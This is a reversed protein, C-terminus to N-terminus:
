SENDVVAKVLADKYKDNLAQLEKNRVELATMENTMRGIAAAQTKILSGRYNYTVMLIMSSVFAVVIGSVVLPARVYQGHFIPHFIALLVMASGIILLATALFGIM